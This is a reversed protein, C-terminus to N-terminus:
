KGTLIGSNLAHIQNWLSDRCWEPGKEGTVSRTRRPGKSRLKTTPYQGLPTEQQLQIQHSDWVIALNASSGQTPITWSVVM